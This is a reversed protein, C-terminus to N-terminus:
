IRGRRSNRRRGIVSLRCVSSLYGNRSKRKSSILRVVDENLGREIIETQVDTSFGYEYKKHAVERVFQNKGENPGQGDKPVDGSRKDEEKKYM